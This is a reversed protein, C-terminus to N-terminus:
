PHPLVTPDEARSSSCTQDIITAEAAETPSRRKIVSTDTGAARIAASSNRTQWWAASSLNGAFDTLQRAPDLDETQDPCPVSSGWLEAKKM